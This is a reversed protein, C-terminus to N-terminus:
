GAYSLRLTFPGFGRVRKVTMTVNEVPLTRCAAKYSLVDRSGAAKTSGGGGGDSKAVLNYNAKAPGRLRMSLAGDLNLTFSFTRTSAGGRRFNGQFIRTRNAHWLDSVDKGAAAFAGADPKIGDYFTWPQDPYKLRAYTEAWDEGPNRDYLEAENGPALEGKGARDCVLEYSSWYKPGFAFANFPANSRRNAIHHGYEHTIVYSTTVGFGTDTQEGPVVMLQSQADYCALTGPDGGCLSLVEDAPAIYVGLLRLETSHPLGDLFDVYSQAVTPDPTAYRSSVAVGVSYGEKTPYARFDGTTTAAHAVRADSRGSLVADKFHTTAPPEDILPLLRPRAEAAAPALGTLALCLSILALRRPM